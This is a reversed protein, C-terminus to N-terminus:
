KRLNEIKGQSKNIVKIEEGAFALPALFQFADMQDQNMAVPLVEDDKVYFLVFGDKM